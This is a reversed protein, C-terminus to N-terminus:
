YFSSKKPAIGNKEPLLSVTLALLVFNECVRLKVLFSKRASISVSM